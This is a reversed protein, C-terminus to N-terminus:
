RKSGSDIKPDNEQGQGRTRCFQQSQRLLNRKGQSLKNRANENQREYRWINKITRLTALLTTPTVVIINRQFAESFLSDDHEFALMFATEIPMFMQVFDLSRVERINSYDRESLGKIHAKIAQIYETVPNVPDYPGM